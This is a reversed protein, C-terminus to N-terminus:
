SGGGIERVLWRESPKGETVFPMLDAPLAYGAAEAASFSFSRRGNVETRRVRVGNEIYDLGPQMVGRLRERITEREAEYEAVHDGRPTQKILRELDALRLVDDELGPLRGAPPPTYDRMCGMLFPCERCPWAGPSAGDFRPPLSTIMAARVVDAEIRDVEDRFAEVNIPYVREDGTKPDVSVVAARDAGLNKAYGAVQLAKNPPLVCGETSVVEIPYNEAPVYVDVHGVGIPDGVPWPVEHEAVAERGQEALTAIIENAMAEGIRRGRSFRRETEESPPDGEVGIAQYAAMRSCQVASSWRPGTLARTGM